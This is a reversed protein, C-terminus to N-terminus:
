IACAHAVAPPKVEDFVSASYLRYTPMPNALYLEPVSLMAMGNTFWVGSLAFTSPVQDQFTAMLRVTVRADAPLRDTLDGSWMISFLPGTNPNWGYEPSIRAPNIVQRYGYGYPQPGATSSYLFDPLALSTPDNEQTCLLTAGPTPYFSLVPLNAFSHNGLGTFGCIDTMVMVTTTPAAVYWRKQGPVLVQQDMYWGQAVSLTQIVVPVSM